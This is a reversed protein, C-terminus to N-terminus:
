QESIQETMTDIVTKGDAEYVNISRPIYTGDEISKMYAVAEEPNNVPSSLMEEAYVYGTIGHDGVASILTPLDEVYVTDAGTGYTQGSENVPYDIDAHPVPQTCDADSYLVPSGSKAYVVPISVACIGALLSVACIISKKM